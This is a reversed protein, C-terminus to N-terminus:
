FRLITSYRKGKISPRRFNNRASLVVPLSPIPNFGGVVLVEVPVIEVM